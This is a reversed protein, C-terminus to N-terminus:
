CFLMFYNPFKKKSINRIPIKRVSPTMIRECNRTKVVFTFPINRKVMRDVPSLKMPMCKISKSINAAPGGVGVVLGLLCFFGLRSLTLGILADYIHLICIFYNWSFLGKIRSIFPLKTINFALAAFKQLLTNQQPLITIARLHHWISKEDYGPPFIRIKGANKYLLNSLKNWLECFVIVFGCKILTM